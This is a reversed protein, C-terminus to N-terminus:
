RGKICLAHASLTVAEGNLSEENWDCSWFAIKDSDEAALSNHLSFRGGSKVLCGGFLVVDTPSDCKITAVYSTPPGAPGPKTASYVQLMGTGSFYQLVAYFTPAAILHRDSNGIANILEATARLLKEYEEPKAM